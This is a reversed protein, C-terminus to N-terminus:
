KKDKLHGLAYHALNVYIREESRAAGSLSEFLVFLDPPVGDEPLWGWRDSELSLSTSELSEMLEVLLEEEWQFFRRHWTLSWSWSGEVWVGMDRVKM